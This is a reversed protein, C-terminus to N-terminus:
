NNGPISFAYDSIKQWPGKLYQWSALGTAL